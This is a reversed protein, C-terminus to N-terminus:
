VNIGFYTMLINVRTYFNSAETDTLGNGISAFACQKNGYDLIPNNLAGIYMNVNPRTTANVSFSTITTNKIIKQVTLSTRNNIYFGTGSTNSTNTETGAGSTNNRIATVNTQKIYIYTGASVTNCGMDCNSNNDTRSYYSIHCSSSDFYQNLPIFNTNAFASTGNPTMGGSSFTWGTSFTLRFAANTDLPNILNWKSNASSGWIPLYMAKLKTYIGDSKLGLYFSNIANKDAASTITTNANFYAQADPDYVVGFVYPNIIM